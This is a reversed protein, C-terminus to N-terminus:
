RDRVASRGRAAAPASSSSREREPSTRRTGCSSPSASGRASPPWGTSWRATGTRRGRGHGGLREAASSSASTTAGCRPWARRRWGPRAAARRRARRAARPTPAYWDPDETERGSTPEGVCTVIPNRADRVQCTQNCRICPRIASPRRRGRLKAVLDPDAIQARTMEVRTAVGDSRAGVRGPRRRRRLGAPRRGRRGARAQRVARCLEINFGPPEHFDPRTKEASYIAGRVVVLYDVRTPWSPPSPRRRSPRSGPGRPWSTAPCACGSRGSGPRRAGRVAALVDRAFRLRDAGWEDGRQNTLGSLFQRVLSHQGANVEVGDLGATSPRHRGGRRLRDVVAAIDDAEM